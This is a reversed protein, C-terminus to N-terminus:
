TERPQRANAVVFLGGTATKVTSLERKLVLHRTGIALAVHEEKKSKTTHTGCVIAAFTYLSHEPQLSFCSFDPGNRYRTSFRFLPFMNDLTFPDVVLNVINSGGMELGAVPTRNSFLMPVNLGSTM